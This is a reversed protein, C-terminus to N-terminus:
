LEGEVSLKREERKEILNDYCDPCYYEQNDEDWTMDVNYHNYSEDCGGCYIAEDEFCCECILDGDLYYMEEEYCAEGCHECYTYGACEDCSMNSSLSVMHRGCSLCEVADGIEMIPNDTGRILDEERSMHCMGVPKYSPSNLCDNYQLSGIGDEMLKHISNSVCQWETFESLDYFNGILKHTAIQLANDNSFPYQRGSIIIQNDESMYMIVRWKKSNWEFPFNPLQYDKDAKLYILFTHKDMMHSLNGARYEGDLAHCSHWNHATESSSIFDLPHVSMVMKGTIKCDQILRSMKIQFRDLYQKDSFFLKLSKSIKAGKNVKIGDRDWENIVRNDYFGEVGQALIFDKVERSNAFIACDSAFDKYIIEKDKDPLDLQITEPLEYTLGGWKEIFQAKNKSWAKFLGDTMPEDIAQSYSIVENFQKQIEALNMM